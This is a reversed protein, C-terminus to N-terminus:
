SCDRSNSSPWTNREYPGIYVQKSRFQSETRERQEEDSDSGMTTSGAGHLKSPQGLPSKSRSDKVRESLPSSVIYSPSYYGSDGTSLSAIVSTPYFEHHHEISGGGSAIESTLLSAIEAKNFHSGSRSTVSGSSFTTNSGDALKRKEFTLGESPKPVFSSAPSTSSVAGPPPAQEKHQQPMTRPQPPTRLPSPPLAGEDLLFQHTAAELNELLHSLEDERQEINTLTEPTSAESNTTQQANKPTPEVNASPAEDTADLISVVRKPKRTRMKPVIAVSNAQGETHKNANPNAVDDESASRSSAGDLKSDKASLESPPRTELSKVSVDGQQRDAEVHVVNSVSAQVSRESWHIDTEAMSIFFPESTRM